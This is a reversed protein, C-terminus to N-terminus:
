PFGIRKNHANTPRVPCGILIHILKLIQRSMKEAFRFIAAIGGSNSLVIRRGNASIKMMNTLPIQM